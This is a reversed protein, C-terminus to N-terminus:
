ECIQDSYNTKLIKWKESAHQLSEILENLTAESLSFTASHSREYKEYKLELTMAPVLCDIEVPVNNEDREYLPRLQVLTRIADISPQTGLAIRRMELERSFARTRTAVAALQDRKSNIEELLKEKDESGAETVLLVIDDVAEAAESASLDLSQLVLSLRLVSEATEETSKLHEAVRSEFSDEIPPTAERSDLLQLLSSLQESELNVLVRIDDLAEPPFRIQKFM